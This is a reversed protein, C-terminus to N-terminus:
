LTCNALYLVASLEYWFCTKVKIDASCASLWCRRCCTQLCTLINKNFRLLKFVFSLYVVLLQWVSVSTIFVNSSYLWWTSHGTTQETTHIVKRPKVAATSQPFSVENGPRSSWSTRGLSSASVSVSRVNYQWLTEFLGTSTVNTSWRRCQRWWPGAM